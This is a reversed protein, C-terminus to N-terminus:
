LVVLYTSKNDVLYEKDQMKHSKIRPIEATKANTNITQYKDLLVAFLKSGLEVLKKQTAILVNTFIIKNTM